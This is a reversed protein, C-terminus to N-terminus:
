LDKEDLVGSLNAADSTELRRAERGDPTMLHQFVRYSMDNRLPRVHGDCFTAVVVDGHFSSAEGYNPPNSAMKLRGSNATGTRLSKTSTVPGILYASDNTDPGTAMEWIVGFAREGFVFSMPDVPYAIQRKKGNTTSIL